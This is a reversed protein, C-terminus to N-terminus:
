QGRRAAKLLTQLNKRMVREYLGPSPRGIAVPDLEYVPVGTEDALVEAMRAPFQPETCIATVNKERIREAIKALTRAGPEARPDMRLVAVVKIGVDRALYDFANHITVIRIEGMGALAKRFEEGLSELKSSYREANARYTGANGPDLRALGESINKVQKAALFPSVWVHPNPVFSGGGVRSRSEEAGPMIGEPVEPLPTIGEGAVIVELGPRASKIRDMYTELGLGNVVMVDAEEVKKMDSPSMEFGHPGTQEPPVLVEVRVGDAGEAINMSFIYMPLFSALITFSGEEGPAKPMSSKECSLCFGSVFVLVAAALL